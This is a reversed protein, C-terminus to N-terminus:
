SMNYIQILYGVASGINLLALNWQRKQFIPPTILLVGLLALIFGLRSTMLYPGIMLSVTGVWSLAEIAKQNSKKM